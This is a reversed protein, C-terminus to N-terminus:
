DMPDLTIGADKVVEPLSSVNSTLVPCGCSMAELPPLGFGEYLSPYVFVDALNYLKVLDSEPVYGPFIIEDQLNLHKISEFIDDLNWGKMGVLVLKHNIGKKKLKHFAKLITPINKRGELTGVFLIFPDVIGYNSRIEDYIQDKNIIPKYIEDVAIHVVTIKEEPINLYKMCDNKTSHSITIFHDVKDKILNLTFNWRWWRRYKTSHTEPMIIPTLDHITMIKPVKNFFFPMSFKNHHEPIHLIDLKSKKIIYPVFILERILPLDYPIKFESVEDYIWDSTRNERKYHLLSIEPSKGMLILNKILHYISKDVGTKNENLDVIWSLLGVKM